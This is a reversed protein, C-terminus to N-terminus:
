KSDAVLGENYLKLSDALGQVQRLLTAFNHKFADSQTVTQRDTQEMMQNLRGLSTTMSDIETEFYSRFEQPTNLANLLTARKTRAKQWQKNYQFLIGYHNIDNM